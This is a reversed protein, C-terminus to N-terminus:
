ALRAQYETFSSLEKVSQQLIQFATDCNQKDAILPPVMRITHQDIQTILLKKDFALHKVEHAIPEHFEVGIMLGRGRVEKVGPMSRLLDTFYTGVQHANTALDKEIIETVAALGAACCLPSGGYTSGHSGITFAKSVEKTACIAGLPTGGGMAKAMSVIDPKIGHYMYAMLSGTRGWGTQIEDLMLLIGKEDCFARVEQLYAQDAPHVGGEGQIPELMIGIVHDNYAEKIAEIDNFPVYSFGPVGPMYGNHNATEPQGTASLSGFTRGHFSKKASIIHYKDPGFNEVGYKRALKIMAENAETGSNQFFIKDMGIAECITKALLAQPLTYPYNFTHSVDQVQDIVAKVVRPNTNGINNVAVGGYFDLYGVGNEDYLYMGEATEAIFDFREYTEMMYTDVLDKIEQASYKTEALRM